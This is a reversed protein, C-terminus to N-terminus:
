EPSSETREKSALMPEPAVRAMKAPGKIFEEPIPEDLAGVLAIVENVPVVQGEPAIIKRLVGGAYAEVELTAKDTTIELLVDGRKVTDGEKKLWREITAEQMTEGLKPLFVKEIM